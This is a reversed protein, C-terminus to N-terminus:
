YELITGRARGVRIAAAVAALALPMLLAAFASLKAMGAWASAHLPSDVLLHRMLDVSTTFPQVESAWRIWAPLLAVPFYLGGVLSLLAIVWTTGVASQKVVLTLAAFLLGFPLFALVSLAAVPLCLPATAWDIRLGFLLAALAITAGGLLLSYLFPFLTLAVIGRLAGFPSVILKEFTGAVLEQRVLMPAGFCSSLVQLIVVGVTVFAFYARSSDFSEVHVLQALFHFLTLTFLANALQSLARTRYSLFIQADRRVVALTALGGTALASM